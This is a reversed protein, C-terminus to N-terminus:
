GIRAEVNGCTKCDVLGMAMLVLRTRNGADCKSLINGIHARITAEEVGLAEALERNTTAGSLMAAIVESERHTLTNM